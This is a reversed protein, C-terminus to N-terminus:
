NGRVPVNTSGQSPVVQYIKVLQGDKDPFTEDLMLAPHTETGQYFDALPKPHAPELVVYRVNYRWALDVLAPLGDNTFVVAPRKTVYHYAPPDVVIVAQAEPDREQTRSAIEQYLRFHNDWGSIARAALFASLIVSFGVLIRTFILQAKPVSWHRRHRAALEVARDLGLIAPGFLFPLLAAGSHLFTGRPGPYTFVLSVLLYLSVAYVFPPLLEGRRRLLWGGVVVLPLLYVLNMLDLTWFNQLLASLKERLIDSWGSGLYYPLDVSHGYAFMDNYERLFAAKLSSSPFVQGFARYNRWLWPSVIALYTLIPAPVLLFATRVDLGSRKQIAARLAFLFVILALLMGDARTLYALGAVAGAAVFYWPKGRLAKGTFHLCLAGFLAFVGFSEPVTWYLFYVGSFITLAAASLAYREKALLDRTVWYSLVPLIASVLIMPAQAARFSEGFLGFSIAILVSSLPMWYLNSSHPISSPISLYNWVFEETFGKGRYLSDAISYYYYSDMYGPQSISYATATRVVLAVLFIVLARM